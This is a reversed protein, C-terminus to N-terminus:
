SGKSDFGNKSIDSMSSPVHLEVNYLGKTLGESPLIDKPVVKYEIYPTDIQEEFDVEVPIGGTITKTGDGDSYEVIVNNEKSSDMDVYKAKFDDSDNSASFRVSSVEVKHLPLNDMYETLTVEKFKKLATTKANSAESLGSMSSMIFIVFLNVILIFPVITLILNLKSVPVRKESVFLLIGFFLTFLFVVLYLGWDHNFSAHLGEKWLLPETPLAKAEKLVEELTM